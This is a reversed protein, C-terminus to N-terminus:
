KLMGKPKVQAQKPQNKNQAANLKGLEQKIYYLNSGEKVKLTDALNRIDSSHIRKADNGYTVTKDMDMIADGAEPLMRLSNMVLYAVEKRLAGADTFQGTIEKRLTGKRVSSDLHQELYEKCARYAMAAAQKVEHNTKIEEDTGSYTIQSDNIQAPKINYRAVAEAYRNLARKMDNFEEHKYKVQNELVKACLIINGRASMKESTDAFRIIASSRKVPENAKDADVAAKKNVNKDKYRKVKPSEEDSMLNVIKDNSDKYKDPHLMEDAVFDGYVYNVKREFDKIRKVDKHTVEKELQAIIDPTLSKDPYKENWRLLAGAFIVEDETLLYPQRYQEGMRDGDFSNELDEEKVSNRDKDNVEVNIKNNNNSSTDIINENENNLIIEKEDEKKDEKVSESIKNNGKQAEWAIKNKIKELFANKRSDLTAVGESLSYRNSNFINNSNTNIINDGSEDSEKVAEPKKENQKKQAEKEQRAREKREEEQKKKLRAEEAKKEAAVAKNLNEKIVNYNNKLEKLEPKDVTYIAKLMNAKENNLTDIVNRIKTINEELQEILEKHTNEAERLANVGAKKWEKCKIKDDANMSKLQKDLEDYEKILHQTLLVGKFQTLGKAIGKRDTMDDPFDVKANAKHIIDKVLALSTNISCFMDIAEESKLEPKFEGKSRYIDNYKMFDDNHTSLWGTLINLSKKFEDELKTDEVLKGNEDKKSLVGAERCYEFIPVLVDDEFFPRKDVIIENDVPTADSMADKFFVDDRFAEIYNLIKSKTRRAYDEKVRIDPKNGSYMVVRVVRDIYDNIYQKPLEAYKKLNRKVGERTLDPRDNPNVVNGMVYRDGKAKSVGDMLVYEAGFDPDTIDKAVGAATLKKGDMHRIVADNDRVYKVLKKINAEFDGYKEFEAFGTNQYLKFMKGMDNKFKDFDFSYEPDPKGIVKELEDISKQYERAMNDYAAAEEAYKKIAARLTGPKEESVDEPFMWVPPKVKDKNRYDPVMENFSVPLINKIKEAVERFVLGNCDALGDSAMFMNRLDKRLGNIDEIYSNQEESAEAKSYKWIAKIANYAADVEPNYVKLISEDLGDQLEKIEDAEITNWDAEPKDLRRYIVHNFANLFKHVEHLEWPQNALLMDDNPVPNEIIGKGLMNTVALCQRADKRLASGIAISDTKGEKAEKEAEAIDNLLTNYAEIAAEHNFCEAKNVEAYEKNLDELALKMDDKNLPEGFQMGMIVKKGKEGEKEPQSYGMRYRGTYRTWDITIDKVYPM